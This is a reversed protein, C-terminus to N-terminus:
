EEKPCDWVYATSAGRDVAVCFRGGIGRPTRYTGLTGPVTGTLVRPWTGHIPPHRRPPRLRSADAVELTAAMAELADPPARFRVWQNNTDINHAETIDTASRPVFAPFWGRAVAGDREADAFTAYTAYFDEYLLAEIALCTAAAVVCAAVAIRALRKLRVATELRM